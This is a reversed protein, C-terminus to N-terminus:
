RCRARLEQVIAPPPAPLRSRPESDTLPKLSDAARRLLALDPGILRITRRGAFVDLTDANPFILMPVGQVETLQDARCGHGRRLSGPIEVPGVEIELPAYCAQDFAFADAACRGYVLRAEQVDGEASALPHGAFSLGVWYTDAGTVARLERIKTEPSPPACRRLQEDVSPPPPPLAPQQPKLPRLEAMAKRVLNAEGFLVVVRDGLYVEVGGTTAFIAATVNPEALLRCSTRQGPAVQFRSPSRESVPWHQLQLPPSCGGDSGPPVECTGYVLTPRGVGGVIESLPLGDFREGLWYAPPAEASRLGSVDVSAAPTATSGGCAATLLAVALLAAFTAAVAGGGTALKTPELEL